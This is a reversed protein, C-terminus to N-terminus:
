KENYNERLTRLFGAEKQWNKMATGVMARDVCGAMAGFRYHENM